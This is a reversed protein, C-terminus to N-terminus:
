GEGRTTTPIYPSPITPNSMTSNVYPTTYQGWNNSGYLNPIANSMPAQTQGMGSNSATPMSDMQMMTSSMQAPMAQNMQYAGQNKSIDQAQMSCGCSSDGSVQPKSAAYPMMGYTSLNTQPMTYMPWCCNTAPMPMCPVLFPYPMCPIQPQMMMSCSMEQPIQNQVPQCSLEQQVPKVIMTECTIEQKSSEQIPPIEVPKPKKPPCTPKVEPLTIPEPKPAPKPKPTPKPQPKPQEKENVVTVMDIQYIDQHINSPYTQVQPKEVVQVMEEKMHTPQEKIPQQQVMPHEKMLQEKMPHQTMSQETMPYEKIAQEPYSLGANSVTTTSSPIKIKMGPYIMDPNSLQSNLNKLVNFDVNYKKAINWLTDGKQVIHIKM